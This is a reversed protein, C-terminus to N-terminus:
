IYRSILLYLGDSKIGHAVLLDDLEVNEMESAFIMADYVCEFGTHIQRYTNGNCQVYMTDNINKYSHGLLHECAIQKARKSMKNRYSEHIEIENDKPM